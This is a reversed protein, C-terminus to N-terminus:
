SVVSSTNQISTRRRALIARRGAPYDLGWGPGAPSVALSRPRNLSTPPGGLYNEGNEEEGVGAGMEM